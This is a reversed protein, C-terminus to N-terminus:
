GRPLSSRPRHASAEAPRMARGRFTRSASSSHNAVPSCSGSRGTEGSRAAVLAAQAVAQPQLLPFGAAAELKADLWAALDAPREAPDAGLTLGAALIAVSIM